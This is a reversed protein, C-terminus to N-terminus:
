AERYDLLLLGIAVFCAPWIAAPIRRDEPSLRLELWRSWGAVVGLLALPVHSLEALLEEKINGLAHSHTLLMAGGITCAAPFVYQALPARAHGTQVRWEFVAFAGVLVAAARHVTSEPDDFSEWFGDPGFPWSEPDARLLIFFAVALFVLPWHRLCQVQAKGNRAVVALLGMVLLLLGVWHHNYESWAIDGATNPHLISAGPIFSRIAASQKAEERTSPSLAQASPAHLRPWAPRMRLYIEQASVRDTRLDIAPPQSTLSAAALIATIGIGIEVEAFRELRTAIEGLRFRRVLGYNLRGLLLLLALLAAKAALMVGYATGYVARPSDIYLGAMAVGSLALCAVSIMAVRSFRRTWIRAREESRSRAIAALLYPLGGIWVFAALIHTTTLSSLLWRLEVRSAAHSTSVAAAVLVIYSLALGTQAATGNRSVLLLVAVCAIMAAAAALAFNAGLVDGLALGATGMLVASDVALLAGQTVLLAAASLAILRNCPSRIEVDQDRRLVAFRFAIGGIVLAAFVLTAARLFVSALGYISLFRLM